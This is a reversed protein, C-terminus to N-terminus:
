VDLAYDILRRHAGLGTHLYHERDSVGCEILVRDQVWLADADSTKIRYSISVYPTGDATAAHTDALEGGHERVASVLSDLLEQADDDHKAIRLSYVSTARLTALDQM